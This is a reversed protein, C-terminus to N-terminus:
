LVFQMGAFKADAFSYSDYLAAAADDISKSQWRM